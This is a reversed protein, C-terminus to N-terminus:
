GLARAHRSTASHAVIFVFLPEWGVEGLHLLQYSRTWAALWWHETAALRVQSKCTSSSNSWTDNTFLWEAFSLLYIWLLVAPHPWPAVAGPVELLEPLLLARHPTQQATEYFYAFFVHHESTM